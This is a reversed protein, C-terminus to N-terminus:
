GTLLSPLTRFGSTGQIWTTSSTLTEQADSCPTTREPSQLPSAPVSEGGSHNVAPAPAPPKQYFPSKSSTATASLVRTPLAYGRARISERFPLLRLCCNGTESGSRVLSQTQLSHVRWGARGACPRVLGLASTASFCTASSKLTEFAWLASVIGAWPLARPCETLYHGAGFHAARTFM